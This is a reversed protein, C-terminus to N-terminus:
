SARKVLRAYRAALDRGFAKAGPLHTIAERNVREVGSEDGYKALRVHMWDALVAEDVEPHCQLGISNGIRFAQDACSATKLLPAAGPPASLSDEHWQMIRTGVPPLPVVDDTGSAEIEVFGFEGRDQKHVQGGLARALLQGGLCIGLVPRLERHFEQIIALLKRFYPNADDDGAHQPGGMVLMGAYDQPVTDLDHSSCDIIDLKFGSKLLVPALVGPGSDYVHQIVLIRDQRNVGLGMM